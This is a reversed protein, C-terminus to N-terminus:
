WPVDHGSVMANGLPPRVRFRSVHMRGRQGKKRGSRTKTDTKQRSPLCSASRGEVGGGEVRQGSELNWTSTDVHRTM